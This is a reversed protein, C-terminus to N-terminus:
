RVPILNKLNTETGSTSEKPLPVSLEVDINKCTIETCAQGRLALRAPTTGARRVKVVFLAEREFGWSFWRMEPKSFDKPPSQLWPPAIPAAVDM